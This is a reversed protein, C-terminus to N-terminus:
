VLKRIDYDSISKPLDSAARPERPLEKPTFMNEASNRSFYLQREPSWKQKWIRVCLIFCCFSPGSFLSRFALPWNYFVFPIQLSLVRPVHRHSRPVCIRVKHDGKIVNKLREHFNSVIFLHSM